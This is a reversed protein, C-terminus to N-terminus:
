PWLSCFLSRRARAAFYPPLAAVLGIRMIDAAGANEIDEYRRYM